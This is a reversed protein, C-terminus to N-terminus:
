WIVPFRELGSNSANNRPEDEDSRVEDDSVMGDSQCLFLLPRHPAPLRWLRILRDM